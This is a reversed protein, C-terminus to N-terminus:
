EITIQGKENITLQRVDDNNENTFEVTGPSIPNGSVKEFVYEVDGDLSFDPLEIIEDYSADRGDFSSGKFLTTYPRDFYVGWESDGEVASSLIMAKRLLAESSEIAIDMQGRDSVNSYLAYSAGSFVTLLAIALLMEILTFGRHSQISYLTDRIAPLIRFANGEM